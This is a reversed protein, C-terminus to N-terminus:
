TTVARAGEALLHTHDSGANAQGRKRAAARSVQQPATRPASFGRVTESKRYQEEATQKAGQHMARSLRPTIRRRSAEEQTESPKRTIPSQIHPAGFVSPGEPPVPLSGPVPEPLVGPFPPLSPSSSRVTSGSGGGTIFGHAAGSAGSSQINTAGGAQPSPSILRSGGSAQSSPL